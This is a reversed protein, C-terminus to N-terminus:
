GSETPEAQTPSLPSGGQDTDDEGELFRSSGSDDDFDADPTYPSLDAVNFTSSVGYHSAGPLFDICHQIKRIVLLGAPIEEPFVDKFENLLPVMSLPAAAIVANEEIMLLGFVVSPPSVMDFRLGKVANSVFIILESAWVHNDDDQDPCCTLCDRYGLLEGEEVVRDPYVVETEAEDETDYLPDLLSSTTINHSVDIIPQHTRKSKPVRIPGTASQPAHSSSGFRTTTKQKALLQKEVKLALVVGRMRVREFESIIGRDTLTQKNLQSFERYSDETGNIKCM